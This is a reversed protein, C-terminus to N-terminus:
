LLGPARHSKSPRFILIRTFNNEYFFALASVNKKMYVNVNPLFLRKIFLGGNLM